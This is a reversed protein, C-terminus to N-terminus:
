VLYPPKLLSLWRLAFKNSLRKGLKRVFVPWLSVSSDSTM